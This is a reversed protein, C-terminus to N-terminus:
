IILDVTYKVNVRTDLWKMRGAVLSVECV